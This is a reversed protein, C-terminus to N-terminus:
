GQPTAYRTVIWCRVLAVAYGNVELRRRAFNLAEAPDDGGTLTVTCEYVTRDHEGILRVNYAVPGPPARLETGM